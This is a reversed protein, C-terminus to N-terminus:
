APRHPAPLPTSMTATTAPATGPQRSPPGGLHPVAQGRRLFHPRPPGASFSAPGPGRVRVANALALAPIVALSLLVPFTMLRQRVMLGMNYMYTFYFSVFIVTAISTMAFASTAFRLREPLRYWGWLTAASIFWIEAGACITTVDTVEFPLPRLTLLIFGSVFPIPAGRSYTIASGGLTNLQQYREALTTGIGDDAFSEFVTPAITQLAALAGMMAPVALVALTLRRQRVVVGVGLAVLYAAAIHPRLFGATLTGIVPLLIGEHLAQSRSRLSGRLMMCLGWLMAGEKLNFTTWFLASPNGCILLVVWAPVRRALTQRCVMELVSLM